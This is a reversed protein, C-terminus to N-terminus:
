NRGCYRKRQYYNHSCSGSGDICAIVNGLHRVVTSQKRDVIAVEVDTLSDLEFTVYWRRDQEDFTLEPEQIWKSTQGAAVSQALFVTMFGLFIRSM